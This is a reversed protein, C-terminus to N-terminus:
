DGVVIGQRAGLADQAIRRGIGLLERVALLPRRAPGQGRGQIEGFPAPGRIAPGAEAHHALLAGLEPEDAAGALEGVDAELEYQAAVLALHEEIEELDFVVLAAQVRGDM